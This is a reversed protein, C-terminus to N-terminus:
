AADLDRPVVFRVLEGPPDPLRSWSGAPLAIEALACTPFKATLDGLRDGRDAVRVALDQMAPNHGVLLVSGVSNPVLRLHELLEADEFTYLAPDIRVELDIGLAPLVRALTQRARLASSCLVLELSLDQASLHERMRDAAREGRIALPREEDPLAADDWSSKAHRLLFLRM